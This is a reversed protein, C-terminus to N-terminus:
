EEYEIFIDESDGESDLIINEYGESIRMMLIEFDNLYRLSRLGCTNKYNSTYKSGEEPKWADISFEFKLEEDEECEFRVMFTKYSSWTESVEEVDFSTTIYAGGCDFDLEDNDIKAKCYENWESFIDSIKVERSGDESVMLNKFNELLNRNELTSSKLVDTLVSDLKVIYQSYDYNELYPIMVSKVKEEVVKKVDGGWSFMDSISKEICKELQEAIVKEIIGKEIEKAICDKISNELNNM